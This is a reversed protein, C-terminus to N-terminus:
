GAVVIQIFPPSIRNVISYVVVTAFKFMYHLVTTLGISSKVQFLLMIVVSFWKYLILM